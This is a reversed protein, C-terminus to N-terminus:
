HIFNFLILAFFSLFFYTVLLFTTLLLYKKLTRWGNANYRFLLCCCFILAFATSIILGIHNIYNYLYFNSILLLFSGLFIFKFVMFGIITICFRYLFIAIKNSIFSPLKALYLNIALIYACFVFTLHPLFIAATSVNSQQTFLFYLQLYINYSSFIKVLVIFLLLIAQLGVPIFPTAKVISKYFANRKPYTKLSNQYLFIVWFFLATFVIIILLLPPQM